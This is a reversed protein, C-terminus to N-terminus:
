SAIAKNSVATLAGAWPHPQPVGSMAAIGAWLSGPWTNQQKLFQRPLSQIGAAVQLPPLVVDTYGLGCGPLARAAWGHAPREQPWMDGGLDMHHPGAQSGNEHPPKIGPVWGALSCRQANAEVGSVQRPM